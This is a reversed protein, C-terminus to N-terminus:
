ESVSAVKAGRANIEDAIQKSSVKEPNIKVSVTSDEKNIYMEDIGELKFIIRWVSDALISDNLGIVKYNYVATKADSNASADSDKSSKGCGAALTAFLLILGIKKM